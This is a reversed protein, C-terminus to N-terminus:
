TREIGWWIFAATAVIKVIGYIGSALLGTNTGTIGISRFITPRRDLMLGSVDRQLSDTERTTPSRTKAAPHLLSRPTLNLFAPPAPIYVSGSWQQLLFM